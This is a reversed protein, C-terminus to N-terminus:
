QCATGQAAVIERAVVNKDRDSRIGDSWVSGNWYMTGAYQHNGCYVKCADAECSLSYAEAVALVAIGSLLIAVQWLTKTKM